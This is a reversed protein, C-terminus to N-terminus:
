APTAAENPPATGNSPTENPTGNSSTAPEPDPQAPAGRMQVPKPVAPAAVGGPPTGPPLAGTAGAPSEQGPSQPPLGHGLPLGTERNDGRREGRPVFLTGQPQNAHRM